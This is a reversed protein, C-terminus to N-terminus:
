HNGLWDYYEPFNDFRTIGAIREPAGQGGIAIAVKRPLDKRLTLLLRDTEAPDMTPSISLAVLRADCRKVSLLISDLPTDPGLYVIKRQTLATVVACMALGIRHSDGPLTTLLVSPGDKRENMRRWKESLFHELRESAFHEHSVSLEGTEWCLGVQTTFPAALNQIFEMPGMRGWADYFERTLTAEDFRHVAEIWKEIQVSSASAQAEAASDAQADSSSLPLRVGLLNQLEELTGCVVKGARYGQDLAKAIARLRPVEERPYRRHGSPLRQNRPMGYRKEWMRLTYTSIGTLQSLEGITLLDKPDSAANM